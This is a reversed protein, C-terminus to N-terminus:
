VFFFMHHYEFSNSHSIVFVFNKIKANISKFYDLNMKRNEM